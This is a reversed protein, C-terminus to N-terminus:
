AHTDPGFEPDEIDPWLVEVIDKIPMSAFGYPLMAVVWFDGDCRVACCGDPFKFHAGPVAVEKNFDDTPTRLSIWWKGMSLKDQETNMTAVFDRLEQKQDDGMSIEM